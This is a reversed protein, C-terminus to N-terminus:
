GPSTAAGDDGPCRSLVGVTGAALRELRARATRTGLLYGDLFDVIAPRVVASFADRGGLFPVVHARTGAIDEVTLLRKPPGARRCASVTRAYPVLRDDRAHVFLVPGRLGRLRPGEVTRGIGALVVAARVRADRCCDSVLSLATAGGFSHGAVAIRRRDIAPIGARQPDLALVRGIVFRADDSQAPLDKWAVDDPGSASSVPFEIAAVVYGHSAWDALLVEYDLPRGPSGPNFVILPRRGGVPTARPIAGAGSRGRAPYYIATRLARSSAARIGARADAPTPRGRDVFTWTRLGVAHPSEDGAAAAGSGAVVAADTVFLVSVLVWVARRGM